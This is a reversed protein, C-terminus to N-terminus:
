SEISIKDPNQRRVYSSTTALLFEFIIAEGFQQSLMMMKEEEARAQKKKVNM